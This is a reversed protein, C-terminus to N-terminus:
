RLEVAKCVCLEVNEIKAHTDGHQPAQSLVLCGLKM